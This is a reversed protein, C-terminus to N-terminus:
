LLSHDLGEVMLRRLDIPLGAIMLIVSDAEAAVVQNV